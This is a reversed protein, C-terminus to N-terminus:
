SRGWPSTVRPRYPGPTQVVVCLSLFEFGLGAQKLDWDCLVAVAGLSLGGLAHLPKLAPPTVRQQAQPWWGLRTM